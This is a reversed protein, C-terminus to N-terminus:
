IFILFLFTPFLYQPTKFSRLEAKKSGINVWTERHETHHQNGFFVV